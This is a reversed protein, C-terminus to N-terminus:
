GFRAVHEGVPCVTIDYPRTLQEAIFGANTGWEPRLRRALVLGTVRAAGAQRLAAAASQLHSGTVWTDDVLVVHRGNVAERDRVAFFDPWFVRRRDRDGRDGPDASLLVAPVGPLLYAALAELPHPSPRGGLSPVVALADVQGPPGADLCGRHMLGFHAALGATRMWSPNSPGPSAAKYRHMDWDSQSDAVSYAVFVVKDATMVGLAKAQHHHTACTSCLAGSGALPGTCVACIGRAAHVPALFHDTFRTRAIIEAARSGREDGPDQTM